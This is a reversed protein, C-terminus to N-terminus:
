PACPAHNAVSTGTVTGNKVNGSLDPEPSHAGYLPWYGILATGHVREPCVTGLSEAEPPTLEVNWVAAEAVIGPFTPNSCTGPDGTGAYGGFCVDPVDSCGSGACALVGLGTGSFNCYSGNLYIYALASAGNYTGVVNYWTNASLTTGCVVVVDHNLPVSQWWHVLVKNASGSASVVSYWQQTGDLQSGEGFPQAESAPVSTPIYMWYSFSAQSAGVLNVNPSEIIDTTGNFKRGAFSLSCSTIGLLFFLGFRRMTTM